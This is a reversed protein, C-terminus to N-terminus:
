ATVASSTNAEVRKVILPLQSGKEYEGKVYPRMVIGSRKEIDEAPVALSFEFSRILTFLLAKM